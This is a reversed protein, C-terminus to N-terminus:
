RQSRQLRELWLTSFKEVNQSTSALRWLYDLPLSFIAIRRIKKTASMRTSIAWVDRHLYKIVYRYQQIFYFFPPEKSSGRQGSIFFPHNKGYERDQSTISQDAFTAKIKRRTNNKISLGIFVKSTWNKLSVRM